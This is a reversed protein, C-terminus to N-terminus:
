CNTEHLQKYIHIIRLNLLCPGFKDLPTMCGSGVKMDTVQNGLIGLAACFKADHPDKWCLRHILISKSSLFEKMREEEDWLDNVTQRHVRPPVVFFGKKFMM